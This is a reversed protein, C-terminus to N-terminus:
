NIRLDTAPNVAVPSAPYERRFVEPIETASRRNIRTQASEFCGAGDTLEGASEVVVWHVVRNEPRNSRGGIGDGVGKDGSVGDADLWGPGVGGIHESERVLNWGADDEEGVARCALHLDSLPFDDELLGGRPVHGRCPPDTASEDLRESVESLILDIVGDEGDKAAVDSISVVCDEALIEDMRWHPDGVQEEGQNGPVLWEVLM